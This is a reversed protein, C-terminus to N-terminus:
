GDAIESNHFPHLFPGALDDGNPHRGSPDHTFNAFTDPAIEILASHRIADAWAGRVDGDDIIVPPM